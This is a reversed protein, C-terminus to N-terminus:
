SDLMGSAFLSEMPNVEGPHFVDPFALQISFVVLDVTECIMM